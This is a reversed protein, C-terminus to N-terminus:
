WSYIKLNKLVKERLFILLYVTNNKHFIRKFFQYNKKLLDINFLIVINEKIAFLIFYLIDNFM